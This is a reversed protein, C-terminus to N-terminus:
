LAHFSPFNTVFYRLFYAAPTVEKKHFRNINLPKPEPAAFFTKEEQPLANM